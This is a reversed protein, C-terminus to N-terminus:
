RVIRWNLSMAGPTISALTNNCVKFNM